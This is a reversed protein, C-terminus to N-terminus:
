WGEDDWPQSYLFAIGRDLTRAITAEFKMTRWDDVVLTNEATRAM